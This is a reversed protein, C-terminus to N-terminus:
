QVSPLVEALEPLQQRPLHLLAAEALGDPEHPVNMRWSGPRWPRRVRDAFTPMEALLTVLRM